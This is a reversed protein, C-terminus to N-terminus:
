LRKKDEMYPVNDLCVAVLDVRDDIQLCEIVDARIREMIEPPSIHPKKLEGWLDRMEVAAMDDFDAWTRVKVMDNKYPYIISTLCLRDDLYVDFYITGEDYKVVNCRIM